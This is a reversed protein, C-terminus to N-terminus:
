QFINLCHKGWHKLVNKINKTVREKNGDTWESIILESGLKM